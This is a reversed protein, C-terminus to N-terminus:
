AGRIIRFSANRGDACEGNAGVTESRLGVWHWRGVGGVRGRLSRSLKRTKDSRATEMEQNIRGIRVGGSNKRARTSPCGTNQSRACIGGNSQAVQLRDARNYRHREARWDRLNDYFAEGRAGLDMQTIARFQRRRGVEKLRSMRQAHPQSSAIYWMPPLAMGTYPPAYGIGSGNDRYENRQADSVYDASGSTNPTVHTPANDSTTINPPIPRYPTKGDSLSGPAM